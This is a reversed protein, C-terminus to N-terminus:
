KEKLIAGLAREFNFEKEIKEQGRKAIQKRADDHKLYFDALAVLEEISSYLLLEEGNVFYEDLEVQYNSLLLGGCSMVDLCRLPIGTEITKLSINLNIKSNKFIWPMYRYYDAYGCFQVDKLRDDAESAYHKVNFHKSLLALALFRERGTTECALMYILQERSISATGGSAKHYRENLGDLLEDTVMDPIFYAGYLKGQADIVSELYGRQYETLPGSYYNYDTHYLQGVFSIDSDNRVPKDYDRGLFLRGDAALPLHVSHVGANQYRICQGRDFCFLTNVSNKLTSKDTIHIPSDYIWCKYPLGKEECVESILPAYNVSLVFDFNDSDIKERFKNQFELDEEWNSFQYEFTEFDVKLCRLAKEIGPNM